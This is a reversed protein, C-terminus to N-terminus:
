SFGWKQRIADILQAADAKGKTSHDYGYIPDIRLNQNWEDLTMSRRAGNADTFQLARNWKAQSLDIDNPNLGLLGAASQIYPDAYDKVTMGEDLAKHLNPDRYLSKAQRILYDNFSDQTARGSIINNTWQELGHQSVPVTYKDAQGALQDKTAGLTGHTYGQTNGRLIQDTLQMPDWGNMLSQTALITAQGGSMAVGLQQASHLITNAQQQVSAAATGPDSMNQLYFARQTASRKTWWDTAQLASLMKEPSWKAATALHIINALEPVALYPAQDPYDKRVQDAWDGQPLSAATIFRYEAPTLYLLMAEMGGTQAKAANMAQIRQAQPLNYYAPTGPIATAM